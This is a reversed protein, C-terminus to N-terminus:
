EMVLIGGLIRLRLIIVVIMEVMYSIYDTISKKM